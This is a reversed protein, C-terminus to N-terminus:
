RNRAWRATVTFRLSSAAGRQRWEHQSLRVERLSSAAGLRELYRSLVDRDTAEGSLRVALKDADPELALLSIGGVGAAEIDDLLRIWPQELADVVRSASEVRKRLQQARGPDIVSPRAGGAGSAGKRADLRAQIASAERTVWYHAGGVALACAVSAAFVVWGARSAPRPPLAFDIRLAPM